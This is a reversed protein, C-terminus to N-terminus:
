DGSNVGDGGDDLDDDDGCSLWGRLGGDRDDGSDGGDESHDGGDRSYGGGDVGVVGNVCDQEVIKMLKVMEVMEVVMEFRLWWRWWGGDTGDRSEGGNSGDGDDGGDGCGVGSDKDGEGCGYDVVEVMEMMVAMWAMDEM